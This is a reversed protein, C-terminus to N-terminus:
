VRPSSTFYFLFVVINIVINGQKFFDQCDINSIFQLIWDFSNLLRGLIEFM